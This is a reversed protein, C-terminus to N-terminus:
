HRGSGCAPGTGNPTTSWIPARLACPATWRTWRGGCSALPSARSLPCAHTSTSAPSGPIRPKATGPGGACASSRWPSRRGQRYGTRGTPRCAERRKSRTSSGCSLHFWDLIPPDTVGAEALISRMSSCGDTFATLETDSTRGMTDLTCRILAVIDTGANAVAGFLQRGGGPTEANGVRVELHREGKHCSPIFTADLSLAIAPAAAADVADPEVTAANRLREGLELTHGRLTGHSTGAAVPLLHALVGAAVRYTMLASLALVLSVDEQYAYASLVRVLVRCTPTPFGIPYHNGYMGGSRCPKGYMFVPRNQDRPPREVMSVSVM